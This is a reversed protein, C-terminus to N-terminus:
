GAAATRAEILNRITAALEVLEVPKVVHCDFGGALIRVKDDVRGYATLAILPVRRHPTTAQERKRLERAFYYGDQVPMEIDAIVLDPAMMDLRRLAEQASYEASVMAGLSGLFNTLADCAEKDDDVALITLGDLRPIVAISEAPSVTPHRRPELLPARAPPLPLRVIFTSGKGAGESHAVVTGGHLAVLEKVISLGLGMGRRNEPDAQHWFRDFIFSLDRPEIGKGNDAVVIEIHSNIRELRVQIRGGKPTFKVANSLLNWMVQELRKPDGAILGVKPDILEQVTIAKAEAALRISELAARVVEAPDTAQVDLRMRGSELRAVDLLDEILQAQARAARGISDVRRRVEDSLSQNAQLVGTLLMISNLPNRLEHSVTALFIDKSRNAEEARALAGRFQASARTIERWGVYALIGAVLLALLPVLLTTLSESVNLSAARQALLHNEEGAMEDFIASLALLQDNLQGLAEPAGVGAPKQAILARIAAFWEGKLGGLEVVRQVQQPNDSILTSLGYLDDDVKSEAHAMVTLYRKDGTLWYSRFPVLVKFTDTQADRVAAIVQYTHNVLATRGAQVSVRWLVVAAVLALAAFPAVYGIRVARRFSNDPM